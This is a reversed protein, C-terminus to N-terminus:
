NLQTGLINICNEDNLAMNKIKYYSIYKCHFFNCIMVFYIIYPNNNLILEAKEKLNKNNNNM